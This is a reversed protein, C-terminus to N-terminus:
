KQTRKKIVVLDGLTLDKKESSLDFGEDAGEKPVLVKIMLEKEIRQALERNPRMRASELRHILSAPENVLKGLDEQRLNQKERGRRIMDSFDDVLEYDESSEIDFTEKKEKKKISPEFFAKKSSKKESSAEVSVPEVVEGVHSCGQCAVVVSGEVRIRFGSEVIKGCVECIM